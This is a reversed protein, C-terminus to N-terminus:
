CKPTIKGEEDISILNERVLIELCAEAGVQKGLRYQDWGYGIACVFAIGVTIWDM